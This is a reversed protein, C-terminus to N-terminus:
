MPAGLVSLPMAARCFCSSVRLVLADAVGFACGGGVDARRIIVLQARLGEGSQALGGGVARNEAEGGGDIVGDFRLEEAVLKAAVVQACDFAFENGEGAEGGQAFAYVFLQARMQAHQLVEACCVPVDGLDRLADFGRQALGSRIVHALHPLPQISKLCGSFKGGVVDNGRLCGSVCFRRRFGSESPTNGDVKAFGFGLAMFSLRLKM